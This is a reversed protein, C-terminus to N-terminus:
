VEVPAGHKAVHLNEVGRESLGTKLAGLAEEEGHVLILKTTTQKFRAGFDLLESRGAHASFENLTKVRARLERKVGLIRVERQREVIRRGLTQQAQFGVILVTNRPDEITNRLHHVIRGYECMGSASIIIAPGELDNLQMSEELSRIYRIRKLNFPDGAGKMLAAFEPDFSETHLRFVETINVTLPSDVFVPLSPVTGSNELRKLAFIVEQARELAFSPIVVKGGREYASNIVEALKEDVADIPGHDRNGYTSEMMVGDFSGQPVWPDNLIPMNKRGLDGSFLFRRTKGKEEFELDVMASGLVHGADHFTLYVDPVLPLRAEFPVCVFRRMVEPVDEEAYLPPIFTMSKKSLWEADRRQIHASDVLMISCLDRTAPTTYITGRFGQKFLVPLLGSHDIHAHSLVVAHLQSPDFGLNRNKRDAEARVGQFLGCDLLIRFGNIEVLHKTGTVEMAAGFSTIRM